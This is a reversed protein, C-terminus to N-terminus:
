YQFSYNLINKINIILSYRFFWWNGIKLIRLFINKIFIIIYTYIINLSIAYIDYKPFNCKFEKKIIKLESIQNDSIRIKQSQYLNFITMYEAIKHQIKMSIYHDKKAIHNNKYYWLSDKSSIYIEYFHYIIMQFISLHTIYSKINSIVYKTLSILKIKNAIFIHSYKKKLDIERIIDDRKNILKKEYWLWIFYQDSIANESLDQHTNYSLIIVKKM